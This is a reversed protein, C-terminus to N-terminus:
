VARAAVTLTAGKGFASIASDFPKVCALSLYFVVQSIM